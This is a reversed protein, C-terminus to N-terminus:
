GVPSLTKEEPARAPPEEPERSPVPQGILGAVAVEMRRVAEDIAEHRPLAKLDAMPLPPGFRVRVPSSVRRPIQEGYPLLQPSGIIGVPIVPVGSRLAILAAGPQFPQMEGTESLRGEPFLVLLERAKLKEEATRIAARDAAGADRKVPFAQMLRIFPGLPLGFVKMEFLESKAMYWAMRPLAMAILAPDMDSSHNPVLLATGKLPVVERGEVRMGGMVAMCARGLCKIGEQAFLRLTM